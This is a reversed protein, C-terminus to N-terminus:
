TYTICPLLKVTLFLARFLLTPIICVYDSFLCPSVLSKALMLHVKYVTPKFFHSLLYGHKELHRFHFHNMVGKLSVTKLESKIFM